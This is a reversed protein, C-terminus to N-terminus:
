NFNCDLIYLVVRGKQCIYNYRDDENAVGNSMAVSFSSPEGAFCHEKVHFKGSKDIHGLLAITIGSVLEDVPVDGTLNIRQAEDELM